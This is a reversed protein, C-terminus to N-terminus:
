RRRAHQRRRHLHEVARHDLDDLVREVEAERRVRLRQHEGLDVADVGQEVALHSSITRCRCAACRSRADLGALSGAVRALSHFARLLANPAMPRM